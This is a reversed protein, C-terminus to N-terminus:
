AQRLRPNSLIACVDAILVLTLYAACFIMACAQLVPMDRSTVADVMLSAVGPYNFITEVIIAGGLLYSLSLAIANAIPGAANPLAHVLVVRARSLGKLTAMEVYPQRLQDIVAARTMRAMQAIVVFALTAVPLAYARALGPLTPHEPILTISPLWRLKVAFFLVGLTAVLFEPAAVMSLTLLSLGRDLASNRRMAALVGIALALPTSVAAALGALLLSKPLRSAILERVPLDNAMSRGPDGSALGALWHVYRVPAPQDLGLEHRLAAVAEPTASQGLTESAADGPLLASITFVILSVLLLTLAAAALRKVILRLTSGM